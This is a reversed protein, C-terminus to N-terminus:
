PLDVRYLDSGGIWMRQAKGGAPMDFRVDVTDIRFTGDAQPELPVLGDFTLQGKVIVVRTVLPEGYFTTEYRGALTDYRKPYSFTKPGDYHANVYLDPGYQLEDVTHAENRGFAVYYLPFRPDDTWFVGPSHAILRYATGRDRLALRGAAASVTVSTGSKTFTGAYQGANVVISPDHPPAPPTPLPEGLSQARLVAMAYKVIACPHLPAEVLNSMAIVGFGHTLNAQMCATYGSIGGTHGILRDGGTDFIALGYGYRSYFEPWESLVPSPAGAPSGDSLRDPSTMAAFTAPAILQRGDETKGGNLYFRLYRAMDEPTSLASGAPFLFDYPQTPILAPNPPTPLDADRITYGAAADSMNEPSLYASTHAMGIPAFVSAAVDDQWPRKALAALIEGATNYGDNSYSWSTGPTFITSANRLAAVAFSYSLAYTYDDPVGGTHSLLEHVLVPRGESKISFSPLYQTVPANLDLKGADHLQLLALATMSKTISGIPFRTSPTVPAKADVNAYGVTLIALTHTRDTIAVSMGPAGQEALARPAYASIAAIADYDAQKPQARATLAHAVSTTCVLALAISSSRFSRM